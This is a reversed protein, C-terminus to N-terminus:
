SERGGIEKSIKKCLRLNAIFFCASLHALTFLLPAAAGSKRTLYIPVNKLGLLFAGWAAFFGAIGFILASLCRLLANKEGRGALYFAFIWLASYVLPAALLAMDLLRPPAPPRFDRFARLLGFNPYSFCTFAGHFMGFASTRVYKKM